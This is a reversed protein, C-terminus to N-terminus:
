VHQFKENVLNLNSLYLLPKYEALEQAFFLSALCFRRIQLPVFGGIKFVPCFRRKQFHSLFVATRVTACFWWNTIMGIAVIRESETFTTFYLIFTTSFFFMRAKEDIILM